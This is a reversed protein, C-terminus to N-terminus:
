NYNSVQEEQFITHEDNSGFSKPLLRLAEDYMRFISEDDLFLPVHAYGDSLLSARLSAIASLGRPTDLESLDNLFNIRLPSGSALVSICLLSIAVTVNLFSM